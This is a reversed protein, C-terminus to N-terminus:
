HTHFAVPVPEKEKQSHFLRVLAGVVHVRELVRLLHGQLGPLLPQVQMVSLGGPRGEAM